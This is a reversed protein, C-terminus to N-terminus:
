NTWGKRLTLLNTQDEALVIETLSDFICEIDRITKRFLCFYKKSFETKKKMLNPGQASFSRGESLFYTAANNFSSQVQRYLHHFHNKRFCFHKGLLNLCYIYLTLGGDLFNQYSQWFQMWHTCLFIKLAFLSKSPVCVSWGNESM